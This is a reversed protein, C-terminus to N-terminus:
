IDLIDIDKPPCFLAIKEIKFPSAEIITFHLEEHQITSGEAPMMGYFLLLLGALTDAEEQWAAFRNEPFSLAECFEEITTQGEFIYRHADIQIYTLTPTEDFEDEIDGVVQELVDELSVLGVTQGFEDIVIALHNHSTQFEVLLDGLKKNEPVFLPARLLTKWDWDAPAQLHALLDKLYLIGLIDDLDEGYVPIRSFATETFVELIQKFDSEDSLTTMDVRPRMAARVPTNGFHVLSKLMEVDQQPHQTNHLAIDIVQEIDAQSIEDHELQRIKLRLRREVVNTMGVLIWNAPMFFPRIWRVFNALKLVVALPRQSGYIKPAIEGIWLILVVSILGQAWLWATNETIWEGLMIGVTLVLGINVFTNSILLTSLLYKPSDLLRLANQAAQSNDQKLTQIDASGLSFFAREAASILASLSLLIAIGILELFFETNM